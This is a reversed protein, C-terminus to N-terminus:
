KKYKGSKVDHLIMKAERLPLEYIFDEMENPDDTDVEQVNAFAVYEDEDMDLVLKYLEDQPFLSNAEGGKDMEAMGGKEYQQSTASGKPYKNYKMVEEETADSPWIQLGYNGSARSDLKNKTMYAKIARLSGTKLKTNEKDIKWLSVEGGDAFQNALQERIDQMKEDETMGGHTFKEDKRSQGILYGGVAALIYPIM